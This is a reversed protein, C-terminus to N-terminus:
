DIELADVIEQIEDISAYVGNAFGLSDGKELARQELRLILRRLEQRFKLRELKETARQFGQLGQKLDM